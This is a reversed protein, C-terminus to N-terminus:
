PQEKNQFQLLSYKGALWVSKQALKILLAPLWLRVPQPGGTRGEAETRLLGIVIQFEPDDLAASAFKKWGGSTAREHLTVAEPTLDLALEVAGDGIRAQRRNIGILGAM